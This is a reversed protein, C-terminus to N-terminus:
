AHCSEKFSKLSVKETWTSPGRKTKYVWVHHKGKSLHQDVHVFDVGIGIRWLGARHLADIIKYRLTSRIVFIDAGVGFLHASDPVGGVAENHDPCRCWSTVPFPFGALHRALTMRILFEQDLHIFGCGCRCAVEKETFYLPVKAMKIDVM